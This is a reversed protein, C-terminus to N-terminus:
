RVYLKYSWPALTMGDGAKFEAPQGSSWDRYRGIHLDGAFKVAAPRASLNFVAFVKDRANQRVFSLVQKPSDSIVPEMDAGWQGNWLATNSKKLTFLDRYLAGYRSPTWAIPDREFFKLRRRNGAEQGNYMLPIGESIVSLAISADLADGFIEFETGEWSNKDHNTVYLMRYANRPYFKENWAYWANLSTADAHGEAIAKMSDFWTWSYSADFARAHMDRSEWEALLFVPKIARLEAAANDWFDQPVFGAADARYGDVGVEKVWYRLARTMYERVAPQGYDLEIIDDWDFWPTPRPQGKRDLLYWDPHEKRLVNDWATHNGVWDLIVHLDLKHASAVFRKMDDLTGLEPNVKFFDQVAYPSGLEGKRKVQGIPHIPMLWIIGVGLEKLRPLEKEAARLTGEKTFQRTNIQYIAANRSWEANVVTSYPQPAYRTAAHTDAHAPSLLATVLAVAALTISRLFHNRM